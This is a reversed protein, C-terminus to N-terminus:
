VVWGQLANRGNSM